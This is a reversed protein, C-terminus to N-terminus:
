NRWLIRRCTQDQVEQIGSSTEREWGLTDEKLQIGSKCVTFIHLDDSPLLPSLSDSLCALWQSVLIFLQNWVGRCHVRCSLSGLTKSATTESAASCKACKFMWFSSAAVCRFPQIRSDCMDCIIMVHQDKYMNISKIRKSGNDFLITVNPYTQNNKTDSARRFSSIPIIKSRHAADPSTPSLSMVTFSKMSFQRWNSSSKHLFYPTWFSCSSYVGLISFM